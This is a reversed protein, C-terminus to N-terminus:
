IAIMLTTILSIQERVSVGPFGGTLLRGAAGWWIDCVPKSATVHGRNAEAPTIVLLARHASNSESIDDSQALMWIEMPAEFEVRTPGGLCLMLKANM